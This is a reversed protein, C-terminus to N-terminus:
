RRMTKDNIVMAYVVLFIFGVFLKSILLQNDICRFVGAVVFTTEEGIM